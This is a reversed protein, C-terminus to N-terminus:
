TWILVWFTKVQVNLANVYFFKMLFEFVAQFALFIPLPVWFCNRVTDESQLMEAYDEMDLAEEDDDSDEEDENNDGGSTDGSKQFLPSLVNTAYVLSLKPTM